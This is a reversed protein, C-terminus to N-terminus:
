SIAFCNPILYNIIQKNSFEKSFNLPSLTTNYDTTKNNKMLIKQLKM